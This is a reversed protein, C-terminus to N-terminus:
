HGANDDEDICAEAEPLGHRGKAASEGTGHSAVHVKLTGHYSKSM